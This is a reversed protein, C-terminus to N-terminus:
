AGEALPGGAGVKAETVRYNPKTFFWNVGRGFGAGVDVLSSFGRQDAFARAKAKATQATDRETAMSARYDTAAANPSRISGATIGHVIERYKQPISEWTQTSYGLRRTARAKEADIAAQGANTRALRALEKQHLEGLPFWKPNIPQVYAQLFKSFSSYSTKYLDAFRQLLAWAVMPEPPGEHSLARALNLVDNPTLTYSLSERGRKFSLTYNTQPVSVREGKPLPDLARREERRVVVSVAIPEQRLDFRPVSATTSGWVFVAFGLRGLM